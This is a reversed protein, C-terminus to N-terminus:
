PKDYEEYTGVQLVKISPVVTAILKEVINVNIIQLSTQFLIFM